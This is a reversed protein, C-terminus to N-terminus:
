AIDEVDEPKLRGAKVSEAALARAIRLPDIGRAAWWAAEDGMHHIGCQGQHCKHCVSIAWTDNSRRGAAAGTGRLRLHHVHVPHSGCAVCRHRAVFALHEASRVREGKPVASRSRNKALLM